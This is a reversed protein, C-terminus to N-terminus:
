ILKTNTLYAIEVRSAEGRKLTPLDQGIFGKEEMLRTFFKMNGQEGPPAHLIAWYPAVARLCKQGDEDDVKRKKMNFDVLPSVIIFNMTKPVKAVLDALAIPPTGATVKAPVTAITSPNTTYVKKKEGFSIDVIKGGFPALFIAGAKASATAKVRLVCTRISKNGETEGPVIEVALSTHGQSSTVHTHTIAHRLVGHAYEDNCTEPDYLGEDNDFIRKGERTADAAHPAIQNEIGVLLEPM